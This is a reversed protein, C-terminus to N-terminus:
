PASPLEEGDSFYKLALEPRSSLPWLLRRKASRWKKAKLIELFVEVQQGYIEEWGTHDTDIYVDFSVSESLIHVWALFPMDFDILSFYWFQFFYVLFETTLRANNSLWKENWCGSSGYQVHISIGSSTKLIELINKILTPRPVHVAITVM